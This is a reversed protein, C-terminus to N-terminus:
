LATEFGMRSCAFAAECGAHGGGVVIVDFDTNSM